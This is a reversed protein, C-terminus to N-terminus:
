ANVAFVYKRLPRLETENSDSYRKIRPVKRDEDNDASLCEITKGTLGAWQKGTMKVFKVDEDGITIFSDPHATLTNLTIQRAGGEFVISPAMSYDGKDAVVVAGSKLNLTQPDRRTSIGPGQVPTMEFKEVKGIFGANIAQSGFGYGQFNDDSSLFAAVAADALEKKTKEAM